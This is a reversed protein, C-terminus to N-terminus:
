AKAPDVQNGTGAKNHRPEALRAAIYLLDETGRGSRASASLGRMACILADAERAPDPHGLEAFRTRIATRTANDFRVIAARADADYTTVMGDLVMCGQGPVRGYTEAARELVQRWVGCVTVAKSLAQSVFAGRDEAYAELCAEFLGLKSGWASYLSTATIGLASCLDAVGTGEYGREAFMSQAIGVASDVAFQRPRGRKRSAMNSSSSAFNDSMNMHYDTQSCVPLM